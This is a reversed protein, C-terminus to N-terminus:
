KNSGTSAGDIPMKRNVSKSVHENERDKNVTKITDTTVEIKISTNQILSLRERSIVVSTTESTNLLQQGPWYNQTEDSCFIVNIDM